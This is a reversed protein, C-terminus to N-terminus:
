RRRLGEFMREMQQVAETLRTNEERVLRYETVLDRAAAALAEALAAVKEMTATGAVLTATPRTMSLPPPGTLVPRAPAEAFRWGSKNVTELHDPAVKAAQDDVVKTPKAQRVGAIGHRAQRHRGLNM